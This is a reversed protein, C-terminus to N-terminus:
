PTGTPSPMSKDIITDMTTSEIPAGPMGPEPRIQRETNSVCIFTGTSAMPRTIPMSGRM